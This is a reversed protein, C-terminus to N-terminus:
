KSGFFLRFPSFFTPISIDQFHSAGFLRRLNDYHGMSKDFNVDFHCGVQAALVARLKMRKYIEGMFVDFGGDRNFDDSIAFIITDFDEIRIADKAIADQLSLAIVREPVTWDAGFFKEGLRMADLDREVYTARKCWPFQTFGGDGDGVILTKGECMYPAIPSQKSIQWHYDYFDRTTIQIEGDMFLLFGFMENYAIEVPGFPTSVYEVLDTHYQVSFSGNETYENFTKKIRAQHPIVNSYVRAQRVSIAHSRPIKLEERIPRVTRTESM